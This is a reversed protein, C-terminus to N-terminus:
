IYQGADVRIVEGTIGRAWGTVVAIRGELNLFDGM